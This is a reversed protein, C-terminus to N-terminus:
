GKKPLYIETDSGDDAYWVVQSSDNKQPNLGTNSSDPIPSINYEAAYQSSILVFVLLVFTFVSFKKM